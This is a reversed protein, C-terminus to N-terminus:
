VEQEEEIKTGVIALRRCQNILETKAGNGNCLHYAEYLLELESLEDITIKRRKLYKGALFKITNGLQAQLADLQCQNKDSLENLMKQLLAIEESQKVCNNHLKEFANEMYRRLDSIVDAKEEYKDQKQAKRNALWLILEKASVIVAVVGGSGLIVEWNTM